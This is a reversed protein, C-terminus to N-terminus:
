GRRVTTRRITESSKLRLLLEKLTHKRYRGGNMSFALKVIDEVGEVTLHKKEHMWEVVQRFKLLDEQKESRLPFRQFFPIVRGYLDDHQKVV